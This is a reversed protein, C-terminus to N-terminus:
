APRAERMGAVRRHRSRDFLTLEVGGGPAAINLVGGTFDAIVANLCSLFPSRRRGGGMKM